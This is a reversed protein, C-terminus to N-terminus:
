KRGVRTEREYHELKAELGPLLQENLYKHCTVLLAAGVACSTSAFFIHSPGFSRFFLYGFITSTIHASVFSSIEESYSLTFDRIKPHILQSSPLTTQEAPQMPTISYRSGEYLCCFLSLFGSGVLAYKSSHILATKSVFSRRQPETSLQHPFRGSEIVSHAHIM